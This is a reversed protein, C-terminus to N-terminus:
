INFFEDINSQKSLLAITRFSSHRRRWKPALLLIQRGAKWSLVSCLRSKKVHSCFTERKLHKEIKVIPWILMFGCDHFLKTCKSKRTSQSILQSTFGISFDRQLLGLHIMIDPQFYLAALDYCNIFWIDKLRISQPSRLKSPPPHLTPKM